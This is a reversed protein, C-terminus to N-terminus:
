IPQVKIKKAIEKQISYKGYDSLVILNGGFPLRVLLRISSGLTLGMDKLRYFINDETQIEKIEAKEGLKMETLKMESLARM